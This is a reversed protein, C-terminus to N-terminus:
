FGDAWLAFFEHGRSQAGAVVGEVLHGFGDEDADAVLAIGGHADGM